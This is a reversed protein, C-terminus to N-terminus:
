VKFALLDGLTKIGRKQVKHLLIQLLKATALADGAANHRISISVKYRDCLEDLTYEGTKIENQRYKGKEFRKAIHITDVYFNRIPIKYYEQTLKNMMRIDFDAYHAVLIDDKIFDLFHEVAKQETVGTELESRFIQHISISEADGAKEGKLLIEMSEGPHIIEGQMAVAGISIVRDKKPNLGTTETDFVVFRVEQLPTRKSYKQNNRNLYKCIFEPLQKNQCLKQTKWHQWIPYTTRM